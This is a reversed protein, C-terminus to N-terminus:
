ARVIGLDCPCISELATMLMPVDSLTVPHVKTANELSRQRLSETMWGMVSCLSSDILWPRRKYSRSCSSWKFSSTSVCWGCGEGHDSM